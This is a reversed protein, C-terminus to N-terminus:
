IRLVYRTHFQNGILFIEPQARLNETSALHLKSYPKMHKHQGPGHNPLCDDVTISASQKNKM